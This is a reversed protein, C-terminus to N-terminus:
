NSHFRNLQRGNMGEELLIRFFSQICCRRRNRPLASCCFCALLTCPPSSQKQWPSSPGHHKAMTPCPAATEAALWGPGAQLCAARVSGAFAGGQLNRHKWTPQRKNSHQKREGM